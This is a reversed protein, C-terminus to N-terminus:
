IHSIKDEYAICFYFNIQLLIVYSLDLIFREIEKRIIEKPDNLKKVLNQTLKSLNTKEAM